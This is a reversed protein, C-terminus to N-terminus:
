WTPTILCISPSLASACTACPEIPGCDEPVDCETGCTNVVMQLGTDTSSLVCVLGTVCDDDSNCQAGPGGTTEFETGDAKGGSCAACFLLPVVSFALSLAV